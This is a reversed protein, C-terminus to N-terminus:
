SKASSFMFIFIHIYSYSDVESPSLTLDTTPSLSAVSRSPSVRADTLQTHSLALQESFPELYETRVLSSRPPGELLDALEDDDLEKTALIKHTEVLPKVLSLRAADVRAAQQLVGAVTGSLEVVQVRVYCVIWPTSMCPAYLTGGAGGTLFVCPLVFGCNSFFAYV